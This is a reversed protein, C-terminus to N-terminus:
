LLKNQPTIGPFSNTNDNEKKCDLSIDIRRDIEERSLLFLIIAEASRVDQKECDILDRM